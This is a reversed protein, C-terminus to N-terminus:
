RPAASAKSELTIPARSTRILADKRLYDQRLRFFTKLSETAPERTDDPVDQDFQRVFSIYSSPRHTEIKVEPAIQQHWKTATTQHASWSLQTDAIDRLMSYYHARLTPSQILKSLLPRDPNDIGETPDLQEFTYVLERGIRPRPFARPQNPDAFIRTLFARGSFSRKNKKADRPPPAADALKTPSIYTQDAKFRPDGLFATLGQQLEKQTLQRAKASPWTDSWRVFMAIFEERTIQDPNAPPVSQLLRETFLKAPDQDRFTQRTRGDLLSAPTILNRIGNLLHAGTLYGLYDEDMVIFSVRAYEALEDRSLRQDNNKDAKNIFSHSLLLALDTTAQTQFNEIAQIETLVRTTRDNLGGNGPGSSSDDNTRLVEQEEVFTLLRFSSEVDDPILHFIGHEDLYLGYGGARALYGSQNILANELALFRLAGGLDLHPQLTEVLRDPPTEALLRCLLILKRWAADSAPTQLQYTSRYREIDEGLYALTGGTSVRWLASAGPASSRKTVFASDLAEVQLHTGWNEDNIVVRVFRSEPVILYNRAIEHYFSRRLYTPDSPSARFILTPQTPDNSTLELSRKYQPLAIADADWLARARWNGSLSDQGSIRVPITIDTNAFETLQDAWDDDQFQLFFAPLEAALGAGRGGDAAFQAATLAIGRGTAELNNLPDSSLRPAHTNLYARAAAIEEGTLVHDGNQDFQNVLRLLAPEDSPSLLQPEGTLDFPAQAPTTAASQPIAFHAVGIAVLLRLSLQTGHASRM